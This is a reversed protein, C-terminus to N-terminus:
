QNRGCKSAEILILRISLLLREVLRKKGDDSEFTTQRPQDQYWITIEQKEFCFRKRLYETSPSSGTGM